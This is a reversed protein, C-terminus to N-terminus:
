IIIISATINGSYVRVSRPGGARCSVRRCIFEVVVTCCADEMHANTVIIPRGTTASFVHPWLWCRFTEERMRRATLQFIAIMATIIMRLRTIAALLHRRSADWWRGLSWRSSAYTSSCMLMLGETPWEGSSSCGVMIIGASGAKRMLLQRRRTLYYTPSGMTTTCALATSLSFSTAERLRICEREVALVDSDSM